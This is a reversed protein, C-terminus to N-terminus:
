IFIHFFSICEYITVHDQMLTESFLQIFVVLARIFRFFSSSSILSRRCVFKQQIYNKKKEKKLFFDNGVSDHGAFPVFYHNLSKLGYSSKARGLLNTVPVEKGEVVITKSFAIPLNYNNPQIGYVRGLGGSSLYRRILTM